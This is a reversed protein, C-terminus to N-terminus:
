LSFPSAYPLLITGVKPDRYYERAQIEELLNSNNFSVGPSWTHYVIQPRLEPELYDKVFKYLRLNFSVAGVNQRKAVEALKKALHKRAKEDQEMVVLIEKHPLYYSVHFGSDSLLSPSASEDKTEIITRSKLGFKKDLELLRKHIAPLNTKGANKIDLWIKEFDQPINDLFSELTMGTMAGADHGVEFFGSESRFFVDTEFSRFGANTIELMKGLTNVRHPWLRNELNKKVLNANTRQWLYYNDKDKINVRGHLTLPAEVGEFDAHGLDNKTDIQDNELGMLGLVTEFILDNTFIKKRNNVLQDWHESFEKRWSDSAAFVLPTESMSFDFVTANHYKENFVEESHDPFYLASAPIESEELSNFVLDLVHDNYRVSNDYCNVMRPKTTASAKGFVSMEPPGTYVKWADPFRGCYNFHSGILHVIILKEGPERLADQLHPILAEDQKDPKKLRGIKKNISVVNESEKAFLAVVNHWLGLMQQNSIWYTKIGAQRAVTIFSPSTTWTKGNYQNAETLAFSLSQVTHTHNSYANEFVILNEAKNRQVLKPTTERPYGYLSMHRKSHSEGIILVTVREGARRQLEYNVSTVQREATLDRFVKLEQYYRISADRWTSFTTLDESIRGSLLIAITLFVIGLGALSLPAVAKRLIWAILGLCLAISGFVLILRAASYNAGLFQVAESFHTQFIAHIADADVASGTLWFNGINILPFSVLLVTVIIFLPPALLRTFRSLLSLLVVGIGALSVLCAPGMVLGLSQQSLAESYIYLVHVVAGWLALYGLHSRALLLGVVMWVSFYSILLLVPSTNNIQYLSVTAQGCQPEVPNDLRVILVDGAILKITFEADPKDLLKRFTNLPTAVVLTAKNNGVETCSPSGYFSSVKFRIDATRHFFLKAKTTAPAGAAFVFKGDDDERRVYRNQETGDGTKFVLSAHEYVNEISLNEKALQYVLASLTAVCLFYLLILFINKDNDLIM